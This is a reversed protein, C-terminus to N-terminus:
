IVQFLSHNSQIPVCFTQPFWNGDSMLTVQLMEPEERDPIYYIRIKYILCIGGVWKYENEYTYLNIKVPTISLEFCASFSSFSFTHGETVM